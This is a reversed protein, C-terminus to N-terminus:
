GKKWRNIAPISITYICNVIEHAIADRTIRPFTENVDFDEYSFVKYSYNDYVELDIYGVSSLKLDFSEALDLDGLFRQKTKQVLSRLTFAGPFEPACADVRYIRLTGQNLHSDLQELSHIEVKDSSQETTKVETWSENYVFDQDGGDPGVWGALIDSQARPSDLMENLYLLEGILGKRESDSLVSGNKKAMLRRWQKYRSSVKSLAEKEDKSESSADIIDSCMTIFVDKEDNETLLFSIYYKGDKRLNCSATVSKSSELKELKFDSVIAIEISSSTRYGAYWDLPGETDVLLSGPQYPDIRKWTDRLKKETNSM